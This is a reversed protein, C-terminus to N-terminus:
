YTYSCRETYQRKKNGVHYTVTIDLGYIYNRLRFNDVGVDMMYMEVAAMTRYAKNQSDMLLLACSLYQNYNLGETEGTESDRSDM